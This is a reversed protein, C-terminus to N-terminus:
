NQLQTMLTFPESVIWCRILMDSLCIISLIWHDSRFNIHQVRLCPLSCAPLLTFAATLLPRPVSPATTKNATTERTLSLVPCIALLDMLTSQSLVNNCEQSFVSMEVFSPRRWCFDNTLNAGCVIDFSSLFSTHHPFTPRGAEASPTSVGM